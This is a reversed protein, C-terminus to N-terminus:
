KLRGEVEGRIKEILARLVKGSGGSKCNLTFPRHPGAAL